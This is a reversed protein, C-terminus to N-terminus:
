GISAKGALTRAEPMTAAIDGALVSSLSPTTTRCSEVSSPESHPLGDSPTHSKTVSLPFNQKLYKVDWSVVLWCGGLVNRVDEWEDWGRRGTYRNRRYKGVTWGRKLSHTSTEAQQMSPCGTPQESSLKQNAARIVVARPIIAGLENETVRKSLPLTGLWVTSTISFGTPITRLLVWVQSTNRVLPLTDRDHM